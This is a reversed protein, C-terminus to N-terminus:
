AKGAAVSNDRQKDREGLVTTAWIRGEYMYLRRVTGSLNRYAGLPFSMYSASSNM